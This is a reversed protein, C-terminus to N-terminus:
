TTSKIKYIDEMSTNDIRLVSLVIETQILYLCRKQVQHQCLYRTYVVYLFMTWVEYPCFVKTQTIDLCNEVHPISMKKDRNPIAFNNNDVNCIYIEM